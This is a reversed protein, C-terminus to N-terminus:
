RQEEKVPAVSPGHGSSGHGGGAGAKAHQKQRLVGNSMWSHVNRPQGASGGRPAGAVVWTGVPPAAPGRVVVNGLAKHAMGVGHGHSGAGVGHGARAQQRADAYVVGGKVVGKGKGEVGPTPGMSGPVRTGGRVAHGAAAKLQHTNSLVHQQLQQQQQVQPQQLQQQQQVQPQQLQQQQQLQPQQLQHQQFAQTEAAPVQFVEKRKTDDAATAKRYPWRTINLRRCAKKLTTNGVQLM